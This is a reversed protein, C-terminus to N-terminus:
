SNNCRVQYSSFSSILLQNVISECHFRYRTGTQQQIPKSSKIKKPNKGCTNM